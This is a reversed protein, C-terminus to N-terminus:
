VSDLGDVFFEEDVARRLPKLQALFGERVELARGALAELLATRYPPLLLTARAAGDTWGVAALLAHVAEDDGGFEHWWGPFDLGKGSCAYAVVEGGVEAIRTRMPRARLLREMDDLDRVVATPKREHLRLMAATDGPRFERVVGPWSRAAGREVVVEWQRGAMRFGAREYLSRPPGWLLMMEAGQARAWREVERLVDGAHGLGRAEPATAVSGVLVATTRGRLTRLDVRRAAALSIPGDREFAGVLVADAGPGFVQPYTEELPEEWAFWSRLREAAGAREGPALVRTSM